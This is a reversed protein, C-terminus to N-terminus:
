NMGLTGRSNSMGHYSNPTRTHIHRVIYVIVNTPHLSGGPYASASNSPVGFCDNCLGKNM